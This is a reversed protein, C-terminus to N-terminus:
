EYEMRKAVDISKSRSHPEYFLLDEYKQHRRMVIPRGHKDLIIAGALLRANFNNMLDLNYAGVDIFALLDGAGLDNPLIRHWPLSPMGHEEGDLDHFLDNGDCLPGAVRYPIWNGESAKTVPLLHFYWKLVRSSPLTNFGADVYIWNQNGSKKTSVVRTILLGASAVMRRGPEIILGLNRAGGADLADAVTSAIREDTPVLKTYEPTPQNLEDAIHKIPFGGGINVHELSIGLENRLRVALTALKEVYDRWSDLSTNQSGVHAHIGLIRIHDGLSAARRYAEIAEEEALGFKSEATGTQITKTGAGVNPRVRFSIRAKKGTRRCISYLRELEDASDLNICYLGLNVSIALERDSKAPGNFIIDGPAFGAMQALFIEGESTVEAGVGERRVAQMIRLSSGAKIAYLIRLKPAKGGFASRIQKVNATIKRESFVYLPSGYRQVMSRLNAGEFHLIGKHVDFDYGSSGLAAVGETQQM